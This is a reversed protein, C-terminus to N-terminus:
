ISHLRSYIEGLNDVSPYQKLQKRYKRNFAQKFIEGSIYASLITYIPGLSEDDTTIHVYLSFLKPILRPMTSKEWFTAQMRLKHVLRSATKVDCRM